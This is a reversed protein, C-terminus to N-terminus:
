RFCPWLLLGRQGPLDISPVSKGRSCFGSTARRPTTLLNSCSGASASAPHRALLAHGVRVARHSCRQEPMSLAKRLIGSRRQCSPRKRKTGLILDRPVSACCPSAIICGEGHQNRLEKWGHLHTPEVRLRALLGPCSISIHRPVRLDSPLIWAPLFIGEERSRDKSWGPLSKSIPEVLLLLQATSTARKSSSLLLNRSPATHSSAAM